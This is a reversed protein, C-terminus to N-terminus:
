SSGHSPFAVLRCWIYSHPPSRHAGVKQLAKYVRERMYDFTNFVLSSSPTLKGGGDELSPKVKEYVGEVFTWQNVHVVNRRRKISNLIEKRSFVPPAGKSYGHQSLRWTRELNWISMRQKSVM